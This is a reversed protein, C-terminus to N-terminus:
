QTLIHTKKNIPNKIKLQEKSNSSIMYSTNTGNLISISVHVPTDNEDYVIKFIDFVPDGEECHLYAAEDKKAKRVKIVKESNVMKIHYITKLIKYVSFNGTLYKQIDPYRDCPLYCTDIFIVTDDHGMVRKVEIIDSTDPINLYESFEDSAKKKELSLLESFATQNREEVAEHFGGIENLRIRLSSDLVFTGKGQKKVLINKDCLEKVARRVTIRSVNYIAELETETPLKDGAKYTGNKINEIIVDMLQQYLPKIANQELM